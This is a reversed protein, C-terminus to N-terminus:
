EPDSNQFEYGYAGLSKAITKRCRSLNKQIHGLVRKKRGPTLNLNPYDERANELMKEMLGINALSKHIAFLGVERDTVDGGEKVM